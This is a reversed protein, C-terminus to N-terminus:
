PSRTSEGPVLSVSLTQPGGKEDEETEGDVGSTSVSPPGVCSGM